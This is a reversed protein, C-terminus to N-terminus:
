RTGVPKEALRRRQRRARLYSASERLLWCTEPSLGLGQELLERDALHTAEESKGQRLLADLQRPLEQSLGKLVPLVVRAAERPELKLMGGGLAHGELEVSLSTLSTQWLLSLQQASVPATGSLRVAHLSNSAVVGAENSVLQPRLGSMYSLLADPPYVNPVRYWPSRVRCKYAQSVELTEGHELYTRLTRPLPADSDIRLVYGAEGAAEAQVWDERSFHLGRLAKGRYVSPRLFTKPIKRTKAQRESLHFFRNAGTVYGIGVEAFSGLRSTLPHQSLQSYLDCAEDDLCFYSLKVEGRILKEAEISKATRLTEVADRELSLDETSDLDLLSLNGSPQGINEALLLLVDQSLVPFLREKFTILTVQGFTTTLYELVPRAYAAHGLEAPIVMALRGGPRVMACSHILFPTWISTLRSLKVGQAEARKLAQNRAAGNFSQFRIFPPNGVVADVLKLENRDVEFFDMNLLHAARVGYLGSLELTVRAHVNADLEVGFVQEAANGRLQRLRRVAAELFVGGGFSPDMVTEDPSRVAWATLFEALRVDTYYAGLRKAREGRPAELVGALRVHAARVERDAIM